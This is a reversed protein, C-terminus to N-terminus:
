SNGIQCINYCRLNFLSNSFKIKIKKDERAEHGIKIMLVIRNDGM